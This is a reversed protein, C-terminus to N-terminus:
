GGGSRHPGASIFTASRASLPERCAQPAGRASFPAARPTVPGTRPSNCIGQPPGGGGSGSRIVRPSQCPNYPQPGGPRPSPAPAWTVPVATSPLPGYLQSPAMQKMSPGWSDSRRVWNAANMPPTQAGAPKAAAQYSQLGPGSSESRRVTWGPAQPPRLAHPNFSGGLNGSGGHSPTPAAPSAWGQHTILTANVHSGNSCFRSVAHPAAVTEEVPVAEAAELHLTQRLRDRIDGETSSLSICSASQAIRYPERDEESCSTEASTEGALRLLMPPSEGSQASRPSPQGAPQSLMSVGIERPTQPEDAEQAHNASYKRATRPTIIEVCYEKTSLRRQTSGSRDM